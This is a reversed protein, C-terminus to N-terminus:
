AASHELSTDVLDHRGTRTRGLAVLGLGVALIGSGIPGAGPTVLAGIVALVAGPRSHGGRWLATATVVMVLIFAVWVATMALQFTGGGTVDLAHPAVGALWPAVFGMVFATAAQASLALQALPTLWAPPAGRRGATLLTPVLVVLATLLAWSIRQSLAFAPVAVTGSFTESPALLWMPGLIFGRCPGHGPGAPYTRRLPM